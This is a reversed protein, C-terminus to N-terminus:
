ANRRPRLFYVLLVVVIGAAITWWYQSLWARLSPSIEAVHLSVPVTQPSNGVGHATITIRASYDGDSMGTTNVWVTVLTTDDASTSSGGTPNEGLWAADDTLSWNLTGGRSNWIELTMKGLNAGGQTSNFSAPSYSIAPTATLGVEVESDGTMNEFIHGSPGIYYALFGSFTYNGLSADDPVVAKYLATFNVGKDYPGQWAVEAKDGTAKVWAQPQCWAKDVTVNWGPPAFDTVSIATFNDAPATFTVIVNFTQGRELADPLARTVNTEQALAMDLPMLAVAMLAVIAVLAGFLRMKEIIAGARKWCFPYVIDFIL